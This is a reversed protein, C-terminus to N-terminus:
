VSLTQLQIILMDLMTRLTNPMHQRSSYLGYIGLKQPAYQPLIPVLLGKKIYTDAAYKPQLAIGLGQLAGQLIVSPDDATFNGSVPVSLEVDNHSFRWLSKGFRSYTLCNHDSLDALHTINKHQQLYNPTACIVSHCQGLQRAILNPDLDNTIRIALDIREKILNVALNSIHLDVSVLPNNKLFDQFLPMLVDQSFSLSCAIRLSGSLSDATNQSDINVEDAISQLKQCQILMKEGAPSLSISRTSRHLLRADAWKEMTNLYRTVMSRSMDLSDAAGTLSSHEVISIFVKAAIIRDM